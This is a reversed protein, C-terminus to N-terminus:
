KALSITTSFTLGLETAAAARNNPMGVSLLVWTDSGLSHSIGLRLHNEEGPLYDAGFWLDESIDLDIGAMVGKAYSGSVFGVHTRVGGIAKSAVSYFTPVGLRNVDMMGVAVSPVGRSECLLKFKGNLYTESYEETEYKDAGFELRDGLGFESLVGVTSETALMAPSGYNAVELLLSGAGVTEATPIYNLSTPYGFCAATALLMGLLAVLPLVVKVRM